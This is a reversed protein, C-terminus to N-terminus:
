LLSIICNPYVGVLVTLLLTIILVVNFSVPVVLTDQGVTSPYFYMHVVVRLYYFIGIAANIVAMVLLIVHYDAMAGSFLMFKGIFGATLPIGALSLMAVTIVLALLPNTKGLGDFAIFQDSGHSRKVLILGAFAAVSALSYALGYVLISSNANAGLSIIAFLMYGAHSISSYALMRKFSTQKMATINGIFLTVVIIVLLVPTWFDQLPAFVYSFLKIFGAFSAVKVVTSMYTTILIPAGDYVDPTWFHFPAAGIKFLLGVLLLLIGGYFLPSITTPNSLLYNKVGTIDFTGTAGYLLTIGFLLFGTSFAGMLFYKLAAENSSFDSKRIGVLIYLAVSMVEIGVFLMAFNHYSCVMLAGSLSFLILCYYEAVNKSISSFYEKSLLLVLGTIFICVISFALAFNDFLVMGNYIPAEGTNWAAIEFGLALLLGLMTVPLLLSKAKYLGLYLVLIGLLSLTIIAGM